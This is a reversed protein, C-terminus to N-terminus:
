QYLTPPVGSLRLLLKQTDDLKIPFNMLRDGERVEYWAVNEFNELIRPTTVFYSISNQM